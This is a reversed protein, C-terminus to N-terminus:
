GIRRKMYKKFLTVNTSHYHEAIMEIDNYNMKDLEDEYIRLDELLLIEMDKLNKMPTITYLLDCLAKEPSAILFERGDYNDIEIGLPYVEMPVDRYEFTGFANVFKKKKKKDFTALTYTYIREPIMEYYELAKEFSVYSPGFITTGLTIGGVSRDTEYVGNKLKILNGKKVERAIKTDKNEYESYKFRLSETTEIM